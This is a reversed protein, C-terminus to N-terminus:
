LLLTDIMVINEKDNVKTPTPSATNVVKVSKMNTASKNETPVPNSPAFDDKDIIRMKFDYDDYKRTFFGNTRWLLYPETFGSKNIFDFEGLFIMECKDLKILCNQDDFNGDTYVPMTHGDISYDVLDPDNLDPMIFKVRLKGEDDYAIRSPCAYVFYNNSGIRYTNFDLGVEDQYVKNLTWLLKSVDDETLYEDPYEEDDADDTDPLEIKEYDKHIIDNLTNIQRMINNERAVIEATEDEVKQEASSPIINDKPVVAVVDDDINFISNRKNFHQLLDEDVVGYYVGNCFKVKVTRELKNQMTNFVFHYTIDESIDDTGTNYRRANRGIEEGNVFQNIIQITAQGIPLSFDWSFEINNVTSGIEFNTIEPNVNFYLLRIYNKLINIEPNADLAPLIYHGHKDKIIFEDLEYDYIFPKENYRYGGTVWFDRVIENIIAIRAVNWKIMDPDINSVKTFIGFLHDLEHYGFSENNKIYKILNDYDSLKTAKMYATIRKDTSRYSPNVNLKLTTMPDSKLRFTHSDITVLDTSPIKKGNLWFLYFDSVYPVELSKKNTEIYGNEHLSVPSAETNMNLLEEPVYFVEIRDTPGVFKTTYLYIGWFPRTYKPVTILFSDDEMRRGNIFFIYQKQNDCYRFRESLRLRYAKQDVYLREYIFKRSSVATFYNRHLPIVEENGGEEEDKSVSVIGSNSITNSSINPDVVDRFVLLDNNSNRYSVNFAIDNREDILDKYVMIEEPYRAFIKIDEPRIYEKFLDSKVFSPDDVEEMKSLMNETIEFHIENNDCHTFFLLEIVDGNAFEEEIPIFFYNPAVYMNSYSSILEGNLFVIVYTEHDRYKRRPIKLGKRKETGFPFLLSENATKGNLVTSKITTKTLDNYLLPDFNMIENFGQIYNDEYLLENYYSYSLYRRCLNLLEKNPEVNESPYISYPMKPLAFIDEIISRDECIAMIQEFDNRDSNRAVELIKDVIYQHVFRDDNYIMQEVNGPVFTKIVMDDEEPNDLVIINKHCVTLETEPYFLGNKFTLFSDRFLTNKIDSHDLIIKSESSRDTLTNMYDEALIALVNIGSDMNLTGDPDFRFLAHEELYEKSCHCINDYIKQSYSDRDLANFKTSFTSVLNGSADREYKNLIIRKLKAIRDQSLLGMYIMRLQAYLWAGVNYIMKRHKYISFMTPVTIQIKNNENVILSDQLFGTLMELNKDWIADNEEGIFEMRYPLIVMSFESHNMNYINFEPGHVLLYSTDCDYVVDINNWNVFKRNIFLMFPHILNNFVMQDMRCVFSKKNELREFSRYPMDDVRLIGFTEEPYDSSFRYSYWQDDYHFRDTSILQTKKTIRSEIATKILAISNPIYKNKLFKHSWEPIFEPDMRSDANKLYEKEEEEELAQNKKSELREFYNQHPFINHIVRGDICIAFVNADEINVVNTHPGIDDSLMIDRIITGDMCIAFMGNMDTVTSNDTRRGGIIKINKILAGDETVVIPLKALTNLYVSNFTNSKLEETIVKSLDKM